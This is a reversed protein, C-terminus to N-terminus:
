CFSLMVVVVVVVVSERVKQKLKHTQDKIQMEHNDYFYVSFFDTEVTQTDSHAQDM